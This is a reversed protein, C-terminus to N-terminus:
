DAGEDPKRKEKPLKSDVWNSIDKGKEIQITSVVFFAVAGFAIVALLLHLFVQEGLLTYLVYLALGILGAGIFVALVIGAYVGAVLLRRMTAKSIIPKDDM